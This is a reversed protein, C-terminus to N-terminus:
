YQIEDLILRLSLFLYIAPSGGLLIQWSTVNVEDQLAGSDSFLVPICTLTSLSWSSVHDVIRIGLLFYAGAESSYVSLLRTASFCRSLTLTEGL